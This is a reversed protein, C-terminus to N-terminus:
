AARKQDREASSRYQAKKAELGSPLVDPFEATELVLGDKACHNEVMEIVVCAGLIL